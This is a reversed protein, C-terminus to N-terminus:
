RNPSRATQFKSTTSMLFDIITMSNQPLRIPSTAPSTSIPVVTARAILLSMKTILPGSTVPILDPAKDHVNSPRIPM